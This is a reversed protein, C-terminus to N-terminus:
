RWTGRWGCGGVVGLNCRWMGRSALCGVLGSVNNSSVTQAHGSDACVSQLKDENRGVHVCQVHAYEITHMGVSPSVYMCM